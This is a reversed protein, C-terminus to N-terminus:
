REESWTLGTIIRQLAAFERGSRPSQTALRLRGADDLMLLVPTTRHGLRALERTVHMPVQRLAVQAMWAPLAQRIRVSDAPAGVYWIVTLAVATRVDARHLLNFMRFNGPCDDAHLVLATSLPAADITAPPAFPAMAAPLSADPKARVADIVVGALTLGLIAIVWPLPIRM